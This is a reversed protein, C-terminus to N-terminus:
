GAKIGGFIAHDLYKWFCDVSEFGAATLWELQNRLPARYNQHSRQHAKREAAIEEISRTTGRLEQERQQIHQYRLYDFRPQWTTPTLISDDNLFMGGPKLMAFVEAYLARKREDSIHHIALGSVAADYGGSLQENWSPYALDGLHLSVREGYKALRERALKMMEASGDLYTVSSHPYRTLFQETIAGFGAGIDLVRVPADTPWPLLDVLLGLQEDRKPVSIAVNDVYYRVRGPEGWGCLTDAM